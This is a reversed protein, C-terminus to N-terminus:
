KHKFFVPLYQMLLNAVEVCGAKESKMYVYTYVIGFWISYLPYLPLKILVKIVPITWPMLVCTQFFKHLNELEKKEKNELLSNKFYTGSMDDLYEDKLYGQAMAYDVIETESYPTFISCWPFDTKIRINLSITEFANEVTEGPLGIISYARFKIRHKKLLRAAAVIQKETLNKKILKERLIENGSELGFWVSACGAEKLKRVLEEDLLNARALCIFPLDIDSKKYKDLLHIIRERNLIFNDDAFHVTEFSYNDKMHRIEKIIRDPSHFRVYKGKGSFIQKLKKNYCFTCEYPCGRSTILYKTKKNKLRPYRDYYLGKDPFPLIDLDEILQRMDNKVVQHDKKVWLNKIQSYDMKADLADMLELMPFEGEGMCIIDVPGQNIVDPYLTPHLGGFIVPADPLEKKLHEAVKLAWHQMGPMLSFAILDFGSNKAYGAIKDPSNEILLDCTHGNSKLLASIYAVGQNDFEINQLFLVRAM